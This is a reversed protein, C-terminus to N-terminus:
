LLRPCFSFAASYRERRTSFYGFLLSEPLAFFSIEAKFFHLLFVLTGGSGFLFRCFGIIRYKKIEPILFNDYDAPALNGFSLYVGKQLGPGRHRDYTGRDCFFEFFFQPSATDRMNWPFVSLPIELSGKQSNRGGIRGQHILADGTLRRTRDINHIGRM